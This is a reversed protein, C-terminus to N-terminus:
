WIADPHRGRCRHEGAPVGAQRQRAEGPPALTVALDARGPSDSSRDSLRFVKPPHDVPEFTSPEDLRLVFVSTTAVVAVVAAAVAALALRYQRGPQQAERELRPLLPAPQAEDAMDHLTTRLRDELATM